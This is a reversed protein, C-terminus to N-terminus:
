NTLLEHALSSAGIRFLKPKLWSSGLTNEVISIYQLADAKTKVGGSVKIGVKKGTKEYHELVIESMWKVAEPTAGIACKGTSTKVFDAGAAIAISTARKILQEDLLEGTELIVKLCVNPAAARLAQLEEEAQEFNEALLLGRNIVIDIEDVGMKAMQQVEFVKTELSSLGHPFAGAVVATQIGTLTLKEQVFGGFDSYVCVAAVSNNRHHQELAFVVLESISQLNDTSNLSTLDLFSFIEKSTM